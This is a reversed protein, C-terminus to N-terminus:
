DTITIVDGHRKDVVGQFMVDEWIFGDCPASAVEPSLDNFIDTFRALAQKASLQNPDNVHVLSDFFPGLEPIRNELHRVYTQLCTGMFAVDVRFPNFPYSITEPPVDHLAFNLDRRSTHAEELITDEPFVESASFDFLAYRVEKPDRLGTRRSTESSELVANMGINQPLCDLHVIRNRHLFDFTELVTKAFSMLESVNEFEPLICSDWRPMVVFIFKDFTIYDLAYIAHNAPDSRLKKSNLLQMVKLENSPNDVESIVKIIVDRGLADRAAWIRPAWLTRPIPAKSPLQRAYPYATVKAAPPFPPPNLNGLGVPDIYM